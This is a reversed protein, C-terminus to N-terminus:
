RSIYDIAYTFNFHKGVKSAHLGIKSSYFLMIPSSVKNDEFPLKNYVATFMYYM